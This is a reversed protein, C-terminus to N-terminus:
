EDSPNDQQETEEPEPPIPINEPYTKLKAASSMEEIWEFIRARKKERLVKREIDSKVEDFEQQRDPQHEEKRFILYYTKDDVDTEFVAETMEGIEQEFAAEIFESWNPSASKTFFNTNGPDDANKGPGNAIKNDDSLAKAMEVIDKGAKIQDLTEHALDEDDLTICTARVRAEEIYDGKHQDYYELLDEESFQVKADVEIETLKEVMLQHTYDDMKNLFDELKDFGLDTAQLLKLKEDIYDELYEAKGEKTSYNQQRYVPLEAIATELEILSIQQLEGKWKFEAIIIQSKDIQQEETDHSDSKVLTWTLFCTIFLTVLIVIKKM